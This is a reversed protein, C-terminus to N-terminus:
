VKYSAFMHGSLHILATLFIACRNQAPIVARGRVQIGDTGDALIVQALEQHPCRLIKAVALEYAHLSCGWCCLQLRNSLIHSSLNIM